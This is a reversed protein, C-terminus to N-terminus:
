NQLQQEDCREQALVGVCYMWPLLLTKRMRAARVQTFIAERQGNAGSKTRDEGGGFRLPAQESTGYTISSENGSVLHRAVM